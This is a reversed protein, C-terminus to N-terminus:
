VGPQDNTNMKKAKTRAALRALVANVAERKFDSESVVQPNLDLRGSDYMHLMTLLYSPDAPWKCKQWYISLAKREEPPYVRLRSRAERWKAARAQRDAAMHKAWYHARRAMETEVDQQEAAIESAFLPYRDREAKQKRLFALRKRNTDKFEFHGLRNFRM